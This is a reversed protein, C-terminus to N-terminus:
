PAAHREDPRRSAEGPVASCEEADPVGGPRGDGIAFRRCSCRGPPADDSATPSPVKAVACARPVAGGSEPEQEGRGEDPQGAVQGLGRQVVPVAAGNPHGSSRGRPRPRSPETTMGRDPKGTDTGM